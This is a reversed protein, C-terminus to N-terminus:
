LIHIEQLLEKFLEDDIVGEQIQAGFKSDVRTYREYVGFINNDFHRYLENLATSIEEAKESKQIIKNNTLAEKFLERQWLTFGVQSKIWNIITEAIEKRREQSIDEIGGQVEKVIANSQLEYFEADAQRQFEEPNETAGCIRRLDAQAIAFTVLSSESTLTPQSFKNGKLFELPLSVDDRTDNHTVEVRLAGEPLKVDFKADPYTAGVADFIRKEFENDPFLVGGESDQFIEMEKGIEIASAEENGVSVGINKLNEKNHEGFGRHRVRMEGEKLDANQVLDHGLGVIYGFEIDEDSVLEPDIKQITRLIKEAGEAVVKSHELNHFSMPDTGEKGFRAELRQTFVRKLKEFALERSEVVEVQKEQKAQNLHPSEFNNMYILERFTDNLTDSKRCFLFGSM